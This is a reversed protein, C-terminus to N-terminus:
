KGKRYWLPARKVVQIAFVPGFFEGSKCLYTHVRSSVPTLALGLEKGLHGCGGDEPRCATCACGPSSSSSDGLSSHAVCWAQCSSGVNTHGQGMLVTDLKVAMKCIRGRFNLAQTVCRLSSGSGSDVM